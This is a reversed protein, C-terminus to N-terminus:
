NLEIYLNEHDFVLELSQNYLRNITNINDIFPRVYSSQKDLINKMTKITKEEGYKDIKSSVDILTEDIKYKNIFSVKGVAKGTVKNVNALGKFLYSELSSKSYNELQSYCQTYLERYKHSYNEIRNTIGNLYLSDYNELLMVELFTSFSYLYLALQYNGFDDQIKDLQKNVDQDIHIFSKKNITKIILERYFDIKSESSQKIDLVKLHNGNKYKDNNWNYKYDNLVDTLFKLDGKLESKEKQVLFDFMEQQIEQLNDLKKNINALAVAVFVMTPNFVVPNLIAQGAVQNSSNLASGLNGVGYKFEALHMGKPITVKYIGSANGSNNIVNNLATSIPEFATGLSAINSLPFKTYNIIGVESEILAPYLEIESMKKTIENKIILNNEM